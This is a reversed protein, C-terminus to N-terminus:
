RFSIAPRASFFYASSREAPCGLAATGVHKKNPTQSHALWQNRNHHPTIRIQFIMRSPPFASSTTRSRTHLDVHRRRVPRWPRAASKQLAAPCAVPRAGAATHRRRRCQWHNPASMASCHIRQQRGHPRRHGHRNFGSIAYIQVVDCVSHLGDRFVPASFSAGMVSLDAFTRPYPNIIESKPDFRRCLRFRAVDDILRVVDM